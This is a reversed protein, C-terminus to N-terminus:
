SPKQFNQSFLSNNTITVQAANLEGCHIWIMSSEREGRDLINQSALIRGLFRGSIRGSVGGAFRKLGERHIRVSYTGVEILEDLSEELYEELYKKLSNRM